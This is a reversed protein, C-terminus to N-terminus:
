EIIVFFFNVRNGLSIITTVDLVCSRVIRVSGSTLFTRILDEGLTVPFSDSVLSLVQNSPQCLETRYLFESVHSM